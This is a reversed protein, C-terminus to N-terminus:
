TGYEVVMMDQMEGRWGRSRAEGDNRHDFGCNRKNVGLGRGGGGIQEYILGCAGAEVVSRCARKAKRVPDEEYGFKDPGFHWVIVEKTRAQRRGVRRLLLARGQTIGCQRVVVNVVVAVDLRFRQKFTTASKSLWDLRATNQYFGREV